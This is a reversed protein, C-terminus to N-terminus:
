AGWFGEASHGSGWEQHDNTALPYIFLVYSFPFIICIQNKIQIQNKKLIM